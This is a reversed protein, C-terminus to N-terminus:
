KSEPEESTPENPEGSPEAGFGPPPGQFESDAEADPVKPEIKSRIAQRLFVLETGNGTSVTVRDGEESVITGVLGGITMIEDGVQATKVQERSQRAKQSRPRLVFFYFLGFLGVLVFIFLSSGSSKAKAAALVVDNALLESM